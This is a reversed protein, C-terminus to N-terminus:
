LTTLLVQYDEPPPPWALFVLWTVESPHQSDIVQAIFLDHGHLPGEIFVRFEFSLHVERTPLVM